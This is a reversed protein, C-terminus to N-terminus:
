EANGSEPRFAAGISPRNNSSLTQDQLPETETLSEVEKYLRAKLEQETEEGTVTFTARSIETKLVEKQVGHAGLTRAQASLSARELMETSSDKLGFDRAISIEIKEGGKLGEFEYHLAWVQRLKVQAQDLIKNYFKERAIMDKEKSEASQIQRTDDVLQNHQLLAMRQARSEILGEERFSAEPNGADVTFVKADPNAIKNVISEGMKSLEGDKAGAVILRQFGQKYIINTKTSGNNLAAKELPWVYRDISDRLGRGWMVFPIKSIEGKGEDVVEWKGALQPAATNTWHQKQEASQERLAQWTYLDEGPRYFFRRRRQLIAGKETYEPDDLLVLKVLQGRRPGQRGFEWYLIQDARFMIQYSRNGGTRDDLKSANAPQKPGDVLVGVRGLALRYWLLDSLFEEATQQQGTVDLLFDKIASDAISGWTVNQNLHAIHIQHSPELIPKLYSRKLRTEFHKKAETTDAEEAEYKILHNGIRESGGELFDLIASYDPLAARLEQHLVIDVLENLAM